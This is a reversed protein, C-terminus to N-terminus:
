PALGLQRMMTAADFYSNAETVKGGQTHFVNCVSVEVSRGTPAIPGTPTQLPGNHTGRFVFQIAGTDGGDILHTTDVTSDPFASSWTEMVERYGAVGKSGAGFPVVNWTFTDSISSEPGAFERSNYAEHIARSLRAGDGNAVNGEM